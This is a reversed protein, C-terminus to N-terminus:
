DKDKEDLCLVKRSVEVCEKRKEENICTGDKYYRCTTLNCSNKEVANNVKEVFEMLPIDNITIEQMANQVLEEITPLNAMNEIEDGRSDNLTTKIGIILSNYLMEPM